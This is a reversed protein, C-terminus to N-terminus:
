EPICRIIHGADSLTVAEPNHITPILPLKAEAGSTERVLRPLMYGPLHGALEGVLGKAVDDAVEFHSAGQVRDLQHLYYPLVGAAFLRESLAILAPASDNVDRLLVAQNLTTDATNSLETLTEAVHEDIENVHNCHVVVVLQKSLGALIELLGADLRAPIVVPFRTHIRIRQLHPIQDFENLIRRLRPNGLSLPDGGSLIVETISQDAMLRDRCRNLRGRTLANERYPFERRFCYRCHIPCAGTTILLARGRYKQLMGPVLISLRDGVPDSGYGPAAADEAAGPLVQRLLPDDPDGRRMRDAYCRPVLLPFSHLAEQSIATKGIDIALFELLAQVDRFAHSLEEQWTRM